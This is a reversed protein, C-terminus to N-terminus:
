EGANFGVVVGRCNEQRQFVATDNTAKGDTFGRASRDTHEAIGTDRERIADQMCVSCGKARIRVCRDVHCVGRNVAVRSANSEFGTGCCGHFIAREGAVGSGDTCRESGPLATVVAVGAVCGIEDACLMGTGVHLGRREIDVDRGEIVM